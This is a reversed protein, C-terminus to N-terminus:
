TQAFQAKYFEYINDVNRVIFLLCEKCDRDTGITHSSRNGHRCNRPEACNRARIKEFRGQSLHRIDFIFDSSCKRQEKLQAIEEAKRTQFEHQEDVKHKLMNELVQCKTDDAILNWDKQHTLTSFDQQVLWEFVKKELKRDFYSINPIM